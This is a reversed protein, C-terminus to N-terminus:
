KLWKYWSTTSRFFNDILVVNTWGAEEIAGTFPQYRLTAHAESEGGRTVISMRNKSAMHRMAMNESLCQMFIGTIGKVKCASVAREFLQNGLGKGRFEKDISLGFEAEGDPLVSIHSTAVIEGRDGLCGFWSDKETFANQVYKEILEDTPCYGFRLRRDEMSLRTFHDVIAPINHKYLKIPVM